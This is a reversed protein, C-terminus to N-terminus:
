YLLEIVTEAIIKGATDPATKAPISPLAIYKIGYNEATESVFGGRSSLDFFYAESLSQAVGSDFRIDVTNFVIDFQGSANSIENTKIHNIGLSDLMSFDKKSRASVTLAPNFCKLRDTLIKGLRGYGIILVRSKWLSFETNEIAYAIAGEATLVCNKLAFEDLSLLDTYNNINTKGGGFVKVSKPLAKFMDLPIIRKTIPCNINVSDRTAPIPLLVADTATLKTSDGDILGITEAEIGRRKFERLAFIM